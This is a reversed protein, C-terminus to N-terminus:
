TAFEHGSIKQGTEDLAIIMDTEKNLLLTSEYQKLSDGSINKKSDIEIIDWSKFGLGKSLGTIRKQYEQILSLTPSKKLKGIAYLELKM